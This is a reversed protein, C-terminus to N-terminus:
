LDIGLDGFRDRVFTSALQNAKPISIRIQTDNTSPLANDAPLYWYARGALGLKVSDLSVCAPPVSDLVVLVLHLPLFDDRRYILDNYNKVELDYKIHTGADIIGTVTTAKLQFDLKYQSDLYRTSGTKEIRKTVPCLTMDVGHDANPELVKFGHGHALIKLFGRSMEEKMQEETMMKM